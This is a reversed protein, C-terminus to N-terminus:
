SWIANQIVRPWASVPAKTWGAGADVGAAKAPDYLQADTAAHFDAIPLTRTSGRM